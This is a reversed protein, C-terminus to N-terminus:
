GEPNRPFNQYPLAVNRVTFHDAQLNAPPAYGSIGLATVVDDQDVGDGSVGFGGVIMAVGNITKYVASSGPFFVVGNQNLNFPQHFNTDPNFANFGYASQFSSAPLPPGVDLGTLPNSGGDNFTSMPGPPMGDIGEPFRPQALYRFTRNTMAVGPPLGQIQDIPQLQNPDDYYSVNRAKAVAVDESFITADPMRYMGLVTGTSDTVAFVMRTRSGLPLRIQARVQEAADIGQVIIEFVDAATLNVGNHPLVLWGEPAPKGALLTDGMTDVPENVGNNPNGIGTSQGITFLTPIGQKISGPGIIAVDIGALFIQDNGPVLPLAIGAVPAVGGLAGVPAGEAPAGGVAAFAMWEAVLSFDPLAPNFGQSLSSNEETAFGTAGPFFVGIGGVLNGNKYIPIGGPLTAMGRSQGAPFIGSVFGYSEPATLQQGAPVFALDINFREHGLAALNVDDATGKIRDPGPNIISDRNTAEIGFLDASPTDAIGPPFHGGPGIAAVFGPGRNPSNPNPVNPDSQVEQQTITSQSIFGISRSTLPAQNNAFFAGTRALSVAGDIIYTLHEANGTQVGSEVRVGLINGNRDVIAIIANNASSAVAARQLLQSVDSTSLTTTPTPPLGFLDNSPDGSYEASGVFSDILGQDTLGQGLASAFLMLGSPDAARHLFQQYVAQVLDTRYENSGLIELAVQSRPVGQALAGGWVSAGTADLPRGFLDQYVASLFGSNTSGGRTAFYEGSGLIQSQLQEPSNGQDLFLLWYTLGASDVSRHLYRSYFAEIQDTQYEISTQIDQAVQSRSIQGQNLLTVFANLGFPDPNRHLLDQFVQTVFAPNSTTLLQRAELAEVTLPPRRRDAAARRHRHNPRSFFGLLGMM